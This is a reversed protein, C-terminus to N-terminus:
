PLADQGRLAGGASKQYRERYETPTLGVVKKFAKGFYNTESYSLEYAINVISMDTGALMDKAADMKARTVYTIFNVGTLRKFLKSFYSSSMNAFEAAQDLSIGEKISRDVFNLVRQESSVHYRRNEEVAAFIVGWMKELVLFTEYQQAQLDFRLRFREMLASLRMQASSGFSAGLGAVGEAFSLVSFRIADMDDAERYLSDLYDKTTNICKKYSFAQMHGAAQRLYREVRERDRAGAAGASQRAMVEAASVLWEPRYPKLLYEQVGLRWVNGVIDSRTGASTVLIPTEPALAKASAIMGCYDADFRPVDAIFLDVAEARMLEIAKQPGDATLVRAQPLGGTLIARMNEREMPNEDAILIRRM